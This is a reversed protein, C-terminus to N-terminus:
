KLMPVTQEAGGNVSYHLAMANLGFEASGKVKVTVEEIPSARYDNSPKEIAITPPEAKNTAVFYDETLRVPQGQDIGAIHYAGDKQRKRTTTYINSQGGSLKLTTGDDLALLGDHLPRDTHIELE